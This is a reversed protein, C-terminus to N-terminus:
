RKGEGASKRNGAPNGGKHASEMGRRIAAQVEKHTPNGIHGMSAALDSPGIFIGDVGNVKAIAPINEVAEITETQVAVCMEKHANAYYDKIKNFHNMRASSMVGRIGTPPYRTAAVAAKAQEANQVFPVLLTQTGVDLLRKILVTDNWAVRVMPEAKGPQIIQLQLLVDPVENPSHETDVVIWDYGAHTLMEAIQNSRFLTTYPFLTYTRTSTPTRRSILFFFLM